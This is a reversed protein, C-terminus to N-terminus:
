FKMFEMVKSVDEEKVIFISDKWCSLSEIINVKNDAFTGSVYALVGIIKEISEPSKIIVMANKYSENVIKNKFYKKVEDNYYHSIMLTISRTGEILFFVDENKRAMKELEILHDDNADKELTFISIKTKIDLQSKRLLAIIEEEHKKENKIKKAYRIAAVMVAEKSTKREIELDHAIKRALSSYNILGEKLCDKIGRHTEIYKETLDATSM